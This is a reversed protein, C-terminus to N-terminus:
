SGGPTQYVICSSGAKITYNANADAHSRAQLTGANSGNNLIGEIKAFNTGTYPTDSVATGYTGDNGSGVLEVITARQNTGTATNCNTTPDCLRTNYVFSTPSSPGTMAFGMGTTTAATTYLIDCRFNYSRNALVPLALATINSFSSQSSSVTQDNLLSVTAPVFSMEGMGGKYNTVDSKWDTFNNGNINLNTVQTPNTSPLRIGVTGTSSAPGTFMNSSIVGRTVTLNGISSSSMFDLGVLNTLTSLTNNEFITNGIVVLDSHTTAANPEAARIIATPSRQTCTPAAGSCCAKGSESGSQCIEKSYTAGTSSCTASSACTNGSTECLAGAYTTTGGCQKTALGTTPGFFVINNSLGYHATNNSGSASNPAGIWVTPEPVCKNTAGTCTGCDSDEDCLNGRNTTCAPDCTLYGTNLNVYNGSAVIGAGGVALAAGTNLYFRNANLIVNSLTTASDAPSVVGRWLYAGSTGCQNGIFRGQNPATGINLCTTKNTATPPTGPGDITNGQTLNTGGTGWDVGVGTGYVKINNSTSRAFSANHLIGTCSTVSPDCILKNEIATAHDGLTVGVGDTKIFLAQSKAVAGGTTVIYGNGATGPGRTWPPWATCEDLRSYDGSSIAATSGRGFVRILQSNAGTVVGNTVSTTPQTNANNNPHGGYCCSLAGSSANTWCWSTAPTSGPLPTTCDTIERAVNTDRITAQEGTKISWDGSFHDYVSVNIIRANFTRALDLPIIKGAGSSSIPVGSCTHTGTGGSGACDARRLCVGSLTCQADANNECNAGPIISGTDCEQRCPLGVNGGSGGTCRQYPDAQFTWFSCNEITIDSSQASADKLMTYTSDGTPAFVTSGFDYACSGSGIACESAGSTVCSAGIQANSAPSAAEGYTGGVCRRRVAAFGASQDECYLKTNNPISLAANGAGPSALRVICGSPIYITKGANSTLVTQMASTADSTGTCDVGNAKVNVTSAYGPLSGFGVTTGSRRLVDGDTSAVIDAPDGTSNASRGIVSVGASNRLKADTVVDNDVTWTAGSGSVTIDGKDGDSVGGGGTANLTTGSMSLNTGLTIEQPDGSGSDGRGLLKSAASVDQVKAYTIANDPVNAKIQAATGADWTVTATDTTVREATLTADSASVLYQAGVPAKAALDTTLNTVSSEPIAGFGLTGSARRLVDGDGSAAIDAPDGTTGASRGIVSTAASNRLKADTVADDPVNAKLQAATGADWTVTATNTVVREATLTADASSVVYEAGVPAKGALDTTLNTVSAEPISGFGVTGAARRLVDGDAGAAIDAPDGTSNASRGIVSVGASDRLKADSVANNAITTANSGASATVDGTLASRQIGGAGTFELGGSVSLAEPDGTGTTDRGILTDTALNAMKAFSVADNAITTANSGASATVDGTLASRQIGPGGTFEIGGSVTLEEVDGALATDRGLLRDTTVNQIKAYTVLDNALDATVLARFTAVGSTGDPSAFVQNGTQSQFCSGTACSGVADIDGSGGVGGSSSCEIGPTPSSVSVCTINTTFNLRGATGIFVGDDEIRVPTSVKQAWAATAVVVVILILLVRTM